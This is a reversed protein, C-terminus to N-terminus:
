RFIPPFDPNIMEQGLVMELLGFKEYRFQEANQFGAKRGVEETYKKVGNAILMNRQETSLSEVGPLSIGYCKAELLLSDFTLQMQTEHKLLAEIKKELPGGSIDVILQEGMPKKAFWLAEGVFHLPYLDKTGFNPNSSFSCAEYTAIAVVRHDPHDEGPAFPDWSMVINARIERIMDIIKGRIFRIPVDELEGDPFDLFRVEKLGLINGAEVAESKSRSVVEGEQLSFSGRRNDTLILEYVNYGKEAVFRYITGGAMFEMDDAHAVVVLVTKM